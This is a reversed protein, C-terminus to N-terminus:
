ARRLWSRSRHRRRPLLRVLRGPARRRLHPGAPNRGAQATTSDSPRSGVRDILAESRGCLVEAAEGLTAVRWLTRGEPARMELAGAPILVTRGGVHQVLPDLQFNRKVRGDYGLEGLAAIGAVGNMPLQGDAALVALAAALDLSPDYSGFDGFNVKVGNSVQSFGASDLAAELRTVVSELGSGLGEFRIAAEGDDTRAVVQGAVPTKNGLAAHVRVTRPREQNDHNM